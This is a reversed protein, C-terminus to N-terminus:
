RRFSNMVAPMNIQGWCTQLLAAGKPPFAAHVVKKGKTHLFEVVPVFDKDSSILIAVDYANEWALSIMETAIRTDVGKEETGRMDAACHPCTSVLGQCAPCKPPSKKKQRPVFDVKCGPVKSALFNSAWKRLTEDKPNSPDYSGYVRIGQYTYTSRPVSIDLQQVQQMLVSPLKIWDSQFGAETDRLSLTFNWFDVFIHVRQIQGTLTLNESM